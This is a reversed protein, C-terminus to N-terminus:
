EGTLKPMRQLTRRDIGLLVAATTKNQDTHHLVKEVYRQQLVELTPWDHDIAMSATHAVNGVNAGHPARVTPPLDAPLVIRGGCMAVARAMANELERVNGPWPYARILEIAADSIDCTPRGFELSHRALFHRALMILDDGREHLAPVELTVVTLRYFLDSRFRGADREVALDRHTAAIVRVDIRIIENGGVRRLEGEQLVRLLQAQLKPSIDGIEDLFITGGHAQEFLGHRVANAGTFAGKEHGFLESELLSETLAACNVAVFPKGARTSREAITRAVLEKGTGTEGHIFVTVQTAAIQAIQKYLEILAASAGVISRKGLVERALQQHAHRLSTRELARVVATRFAEINLPKTLYDSAGRSIADMAGGPEAYATVMIVPIHPKERAVMELLEFGSARAMQVDSVILDFDGERIATIAENGDGVDTVTHGDRQLVYTLMERSMDDDDVVLTLVPKAARGSETVNNM